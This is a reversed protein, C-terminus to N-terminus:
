AAFTGALAVLAHDSDPAGILSVGAPLGSATTVPLSVQPLGCLGAIATLCLTRPLYGTGTRDYDVRGRVPAVSSTTPLCLVTDPALFARLSRRAHERNRLGAALGSRDFKKV